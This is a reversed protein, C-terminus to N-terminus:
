DIYCIPFAYQSSDLQDFIVWLSDTFALHVLISFVKSNSVMFWRTNCNFLTFYFSTPHVTSSLPKLPNKPWSVSNRCKQKSLNFWLHGLFTPFNQASCARAAAYEKCIYYVHISCIYVIRQRRRKCQVFNIAVNKPRRHNFWRLNTLWYLYTSYPSLTVM